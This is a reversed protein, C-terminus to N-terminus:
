RLRQLLANGIRDFIGARNVAHASVLPVFYNQQGPVIVELRAVFQGKAIPAKLPGLYHIRGRPQVAKGAPFLIPYPRATTLAVARMQGDQVRAQCVILGPELFRRREWSSYGWEALDRAAKARAAENPAGGIVLVLRQGSREVAGLFNFGAEFTHGTKIGDAGPLTQAFPDHSFLDQGRWRMTRHGFYRRYLLPHESILARGLLILDNASVYTQGHDPFGNPTAFHSGRMGLKEARRNMADVFAGTSGLAAQALAVAADNASVTTTGMVLDGIRITEGPRLSLTTGKGAWRSATESSVTVTRNEDLKGAAILDFAVLATMAKTISAPLMRRNAQRAFLVQGTGLDVLLGIPATRADPPFVAPRHPAPPPASMIQRPAAPVASILLACALMLAAKPWGPTM